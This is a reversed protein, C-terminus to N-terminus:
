FYRALLSRPPGELPNWAVVNPAGPAPAFFREGWCHLTAARTLACTQRGGSRLDVVDDIGPVLRAVHPPTSDDPTPPPTGWCYVRGGTLACGGQLGTAIREVGDLVTTRRLSSVPAVPRAVPEEAGHPGCTCGALVIVLHALSRM